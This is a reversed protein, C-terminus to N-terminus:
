TRPADKDAAGQSRRDTEREASGGAGGSTAPAESVNAPGKGEVVNWEGDRPDRAGATRDPDPHMGRPDAM